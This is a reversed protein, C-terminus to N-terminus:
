MESAPKTFILKAGKPGGSHGLFQSDDPVEAVKMREVGEFQQDPALRLLADSGLIKELVKEGEFFAVLEGKTWGRKDPPDSPVILSPSTDPGQSPPKGGSLKTFNSFFNM